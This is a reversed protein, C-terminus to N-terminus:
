SLFSSLLALSLLKLQAPTSQTAQFFFPNTLAVNLPKDLLPYALSSKERQMNVIANDIHLFLKACLCWRPFTVMGDQEVPKPSETCIIDLQKHNDIHYSDIHLFGSLLTIQHTIKSMMMTYYMSQSKWLLKLHGIQVVSSFTIAM